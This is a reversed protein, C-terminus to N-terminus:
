RFFANYPPTIPNIPHKTNNWKKMGCRGHHNIFGETVFQSTSMFDPVKWETSVQPNDANCLERITNQMNENLGEEEMLKNCSKTLMGSFLKISLNYPKFKEFGSLFKSYKDEPFHGFVFYIDKKNSLPGYKELCAYLLSLVGLFQKGSYCGDDFMIFHNLDSNKLHLFLSEREKYQFPIVAKPMNEVPLYRYGIDAMWEQSKNKITLISYDGWQSILDHMEICSSKVSACLERFTIIKTRYMLWQGGSRKREDLMNIADMTAFLNVHTVNRPLAPLPHLGMKKANEATQMLSKTFLGSKVMTRIKEWGRLKSSLSPPKISFKKQIELLDLNRKFIPLFDQTERELLGILHRFDSYGAKEGFAKNELFHKLIRKIENITILQNTSMAADDNALEEIHSLLELCFSRVKAGEEANEPGILSGIEIANGNLCLPADESHRTIFCENKIYSFLFISKAYEPLKSKYNNLNLLKIESNSIRTPVNFKLNPPPTDRIITIVKDEWGSANLMMQNFSESQVEETFSVGIQNNIELKNM